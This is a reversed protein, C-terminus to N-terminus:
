IQRGYYADADDNRNLWVSYAMVDEFVNDEATRRKRRLGLAIEQDELLRCRTHGSMM